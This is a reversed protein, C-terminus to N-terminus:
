LCCVSSTSNSCACLCEELGQDGRDVSTCVRGANMGCAMRLERSNKGAAEGKDGFVMVFLHRRRKCCMAMRGPMSSRLCGREHPNKLFVGDVTQVLGILRRRADGVFRLIWLGLWSRQRLVFNRLVLIRPLLLGLDRVINAREELVPPPVNTACSKRGRFIHFCANLSQLKKGCKSCKWLLDGDVSCHPSHIWPHRLAAKCIRVARARCELRFDSSEEESIEELRCSVGSM